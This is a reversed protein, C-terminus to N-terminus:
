RNQLDAAPEEWRVADGVAISGNDLVIGFAGGGWPIGMAAQLGPLAAEMQECPRTEGKMLLRCSGISLIKGRCNTLSIGRVLLNARRAAPSLKGDLQRMLENWVEEEIITVQRLGGQNANGVLGREAVLDARTAADMPGGKCRKIWIAQLQGSM